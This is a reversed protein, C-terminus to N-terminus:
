VQNGGPKIMALKNKALYREHGLVLGCGLWFPVFSAEIGFSVFMSILFSAILFIFLGICFIDSYFKVIKFSKFIIWFYFGVFIIVTQLGAQLWLDIYVNHASGLSTEKEIDTLVRKQVRRALGTGKFPHKIAWKLYIPWVYLREGLSGAKKFKQYDGSLLINIKDSRILIDKKYPSVFITGILLLILALISFAIKRFRVFLFGAILAGIFLGLLASRRGM